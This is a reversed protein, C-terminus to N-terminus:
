KSKIYENKTIYDGYIVIADKYSLIKAPNGGVVAGDPIDKTVVSNAGITVNNGIKVPGIIKAGAGILVNDGITALEFRSKFLNSGITVGQLLTCNKGIEVSGGLVITGCHPITLGEGIDSKYSIQIGYKVQYRNLIHSLLRQLLKAKNNDYLYRVIRMLIIYKTGSPDLGIMVRLLIKKNTRGYARYLDAYIYYKLDAKNM